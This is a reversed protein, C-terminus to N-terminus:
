NAIEYVYAGHALRSSRLSRPSITVRNDMFLEDLCRHLMDNNQVKFHREIQKITVPNERSGNFGQIFSCLRSKFVKSGDKINEFRVHNEINGQYCGAM